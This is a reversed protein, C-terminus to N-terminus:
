LFTKNTYNTLFCDVIDGRKFKSKGSPFLIWINSKIYSKIRFSEQGKLVEVEMKGNKTTNLKGKAFRTFNIKKVFQKKLIAKIPKEYDIRM